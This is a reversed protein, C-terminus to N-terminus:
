NQFLLICNTLSVRQQPWRLDQHSGKLVQVQQPRRQEDLLDELSRTRSMQREVRNSHPRESARMVGGRVLEGHLWQKLHVHREHCEAREAAVCRSLEEIKGHTKRELCTVKEDLRAHAADIHEKLEQKDKDLRTEMNKFFPACYCTYGVGV